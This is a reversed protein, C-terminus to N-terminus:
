VSWRKGQGQSGQKGGSGVLAECNVHSRQALCVYACHLWGISLPVCVMSLAFPFFCFCFLPLHFSFSSFFLTLHFASPLNMHTHTLPILKCAYIRSPSCTCLSGFSSNSFSHTGPSSDFNQFWKGSSAHGKRNRSLDWFECGVLNLRPTLATCKWCIDINGNNRRMKWFVRAGECSTLQNECNAWSFLAMCPLLAFIRMQMQCGKLHAREFRFFLYLSFHFLSPACMYQSLWCCRQSSAITKEGRVMKHVVHPLTHSRNM